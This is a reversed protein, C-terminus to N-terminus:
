RIRRGKLIGAVSCTSVAFIARVVLFVTTSTSFNFRAPPVGIGVTFPLTSSNWGYAAYRDMSGDITASVLSLNAAVSQVTTTGATSYQCLCDIDWDGATFTISTLNVPTNSTLGVPTTVTSSMYEGLSGAAAVSGNTVGIINPTTITPSTGFVNAGTGTEDTLASALNASTPTALFAAVGTGLGSVGTSIPLGTCSTLVGQTPTGLAPTVLTPSTSLVVNGTGTVATVSTGAIKLTNSATDITKNTLTDTTTRGVVTDTTSPLTLVGSGNIITGTHVNSFTPTATTSITTPTTGSLVINTGATLDSSEDQWHIHYDTNDIKALVQGTTGGAPITAVVPNDGTIDSLRVPSSQTAPAPLNLIQYGNMDFNGQMQDGGANLADEFGAVIATSNNNITTQATTVDILSGVDALTVNISM